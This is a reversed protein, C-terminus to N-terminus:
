ELMSEIVREAEYFGSKESADVENEKGILMGVIVIQFNAEKCSAYDCDADGAESIVV